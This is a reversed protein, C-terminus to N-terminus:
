ALDSFLDFGGPLTPTAGDIDGLPPTLGAFGSPTSFAFGLDDPSPLAFAAEAAAWDVLAAVDDPLGAGPAAAEDDQGACDSCGCGHGHDHSHGHSHDHGAHALKDEARNAGGANYGGIAGSLDPTEYYYGLQGFPDDPLTPPEGAFAFADATVHLAYTSGVAMEGGVDRTVYEGLRVYYTGAELTAALGSDFTGSGGIQPDNAYSDFSGVDVATDDNFDIVEGNADELYLFSDFAGATGIPGHGGDVDLFIRGAAALTFSYYAFGGGSTGDVTVTHFQEGDQVIPTSTLAFADSVDVATARSTNGTGADVVLSGSGLSLGDPLSPGDYTGPDPILEVGFGAVSEYDGFIIDAGAGGNIVDGGGLGVLIDAGANGDIANAQANGVVLDDGSGGSADEIVAGEAVTFGGVQGEVYSVLGGGTPTDDITAEDLFIRADGAGDYRIADRGGADWISSFFADDGLAYTDNGTAFSTNAGYIAQIAAIDLAMPTGQQGIGRDFWGDNYTMTTYLGQNLGFFGSDGQSETVGLFLLGDHPHELGLGHGIEHLITVFASGGQQLSSANWRAAPDVNYLGYNQRGNELGDDNQGPFFHSGLTISGDEAPESYTREVMNAAAATSVETFTLGSVNAWLDFAHRMADAAGNQTWDNVGDGNADGAELHYTIAGDDWVPGAILGRMVVSEFDGDNFFTSRTM